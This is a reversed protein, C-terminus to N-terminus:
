RDLAFVDEKCGCSDTGYDSIIILERCDPCVGQPEPEEPAPLARIEKALKVNKDWIWAVAAWSASAALYFPSTLAIALGLNIGINVVSSWYVTQFLFLPPGSKAM